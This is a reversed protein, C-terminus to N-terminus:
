DSQKRSLAVLARAKQGSEAQLKQFKDEENVLYIGVEMLLIQSDPLRM